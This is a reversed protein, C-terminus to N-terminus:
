AEMAVEEAQKKKWQKKMRRKKLEDTTSICIWWIVLLIGFAISWGIAETGFWVFLGLTKKLGKNETEWLSKAGLIVQMASLVVSFGAFLFLIVPFYRSFYASYRHEYRHLHWRHLFLASYFNLPSLPLEGLRYRMSVASEPLGEFAMIFKTFDEFTISPFSSLLGHKLAIMFDSRRRILSAYTRLFGLSTARLRDREDQNIAENFPDLLYEWFAYSCLYAPLPKLYLLDEDWILHNNPNETLIIQRGITLQETLSRLNPRPGVLWLRKGLKDLGLTELDELCYSVLLCSNLPIRPADPLTQRPGHSYLSYPKESEQLSYELEDCLQDCKEFQPVSKWVATTSTSSRSVAAVSHDSTPPNVEEGM